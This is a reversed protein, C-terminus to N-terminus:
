QGPLPLLEGPVYQVHWKRWRDVLNGEADQGTEKRLTGEAIAKLCDRCHITVNAENPFGWDFIEIPSGLGIGAGCIQCRIKERLEAVQELFTAQESM